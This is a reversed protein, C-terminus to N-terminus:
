HRSEFWERAFSYTLLFFFYLYFLFVVMGGIIGETLANADNKKKLAEVHKARKNVKDVLHACPTLDLKELSAVDAALLELKEGLANLGVFPLVVARLHEGDAAAGGLKACDTSFNSSVVALEKAKKAFESVRRHLIAAGECESKFQAVRHQLHESLQSPVHVRAGEGGGGGGGGSVVSKTKEEAKELAKKIKDM